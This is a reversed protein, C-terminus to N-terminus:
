WTLLVKEMKEVTKELTHKRITRKYFIPCDCNTCATTASLEGGQCTVCQDWLKKTEAELAQKEKELSERFVPWKEECLRCVALAKKDSSFDKTDECPPHDMDLQTLKQTAEVEAQEPGYSAITEAVKTTIDEITKARTRCNYCAQEHDMAVRCVLCQPKQVVFRMINDKTPRPAVQTRVRTHPGYLIDKMVSNDFAELLRKLPGGLQNHLYFDIDIPINNRLAYLPDETRKSVKKEAHVKCVVYPVRDGLKPATSPDRQRMRQVLGTHPMITAYNKKKEEPTMAKRQARTLEKDPVRKSLSRSIVLDGLDIRNMLLDSVVGKAYEVARAVNGKIDGTVDTLKELVKKLTNRSLACTDRRVTEMGKTKLDKEIEGTPGRAVFIGAYRKKNVMLMAMIIKEFVINLPERNIAENIQRAIASAIPEAKLFAQIPDTVGRMEPHIFLVSDTDGYIIQCGHKKAINAALEILDRGYATVGASIELCSNEGSAAAGTYGYVSNAVLKFSNQMGDFIAVKSDDNEKKAQKMDGKANTRAALLLELVKPLVGKKKEAKVFFDGNPTKNCLEEGLEIAQQKTLLTSYCLNYAIMISPYLSAFDLTIVPDAHFGRVPDLVTAGQYGEGDKASTTGFDAFMIDGTPSAPHRNNHPKNPVVYEGDLYCRRLLLTYVRIQVGRTTLYELPVGTVRAMCFENILFMKKRIILLPLLADKLCYVGIRKRDEATGNQLVPILSHHLDEKQQGLFKASVSNLSSSNLKFDRDIVQFLDFVSRLPVKTTLTDKSGRARSSFFGSKISCLTDKLRGLYWVEEKIGLNEARKFIYPFDFKQINYGTILDPDLKRVFAAFSTLLTREDAFCFVESGNIPNCSNLCFLAKVVPDNKGYEELIVAIQTVPHRAEEPLPFSRDTVSVEIDFSLLRVPALGAWKRQEERSTTDGGLVEIDGHAVDLEIQCLSDNQESDCYMNYSGAPIRIWGGSKIGKDIMFRNVFDVNAEYVVYRQPIALSRHTSDPDWNFLDLKANRIPVGKSDLKECGELIRRATAIVNPIASFIKLLPKPNTSYGRISKKNLELQVETIYHSRTNVAPKRIKKLVAENLTYRFRELAEVVEHPNVTPSEVDPFGIPVSAYCYPRINHVKACISHGAADVGSLRVIPRLAHNRVGTFTPDAPATYYDPTVVMFTIDDKEPIVPNELPSRAWKNINVHQTETPNYGTKNSEETLNRKRNRTADIRQQVNEQDKQIQLLEAVSVPGKNEEYELVIHDRAKQESNKYDALSQIRLRKKPIDKDNQEGVQKKVEDYVQAIVPQASGQELNQDEDEEDDDDDDSDMTDNMDGFRDFAIGNQQKGREYIRNQARFKYALEEDVENSGGICEDDDDAKYIKRQSPTPKIPQDIRTNPLPVEDFDMMKQIEEPTQGSKAALAERARQEVDIYHQLAKLGSPKKSGLEDTM